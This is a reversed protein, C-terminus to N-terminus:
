VPMCKRTGEPFVHSQLNSARLLKFLVLSEAWEALDYDDLRVNAFNKLRNLPITSSRIGEGGRQRKLFKKIQCTQRRQWGFDSIENRRQRFIGLYELEM